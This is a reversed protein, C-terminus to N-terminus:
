PMHRAKIGLKSRIHRALHRANGSRFADTIVYKPNCSEVFKLIENFECHDPLGIIYKKGAIKTILPSIRDWDSVIIIMYNEENYIQAVNPYFAIHTRGSRLLEEAEKTGIVCFEGIESGYNRFVKSIEVVDRKFLFPVEIDARYLINMSEQLKGKNAKICVSGVELREKVISVLKKVALDRMYQRNFQPSGYTADVILIDAQVPITGERFDGTNLIRCEDTEVLIQASGLTHITPYFTIRDDRYYFTEYFAREKLNSKIELWNGKIAILVDRTAPTVFIDKYFHLCFELDDIHDGHFHTLIGADSNESFGDCCLYKGMLIAGTKTISAKNEISYL